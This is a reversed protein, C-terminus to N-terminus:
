EDNKELVVPGLLGSPLLAIELDNTRKREDCTKCGGPLSMAPPEGLYTKVNTKTFRKEPPLKADGILRNPWLNVVSIELRNNKERVADTIEVHWPATWIVGLDQGNLKVSAVNKM